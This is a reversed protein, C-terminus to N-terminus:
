KSGIKYPELGHSRGIEDRVRNADLTEHKLLVAALHQVEKWRQEVLCESRRWLLKGYLDRHKADHGGIRDLLLEASDFDSSGGIRWRSGPSFRRSALPGALFTVIHCEARAIGRPSDDFLGEQGWRVAERRLHGLSDDKPIITVYKMKVGLAFGAVAHAAEHHATDALDNKRM